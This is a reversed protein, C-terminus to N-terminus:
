CVQKKLISIANYKADLRQKCVELDQKLEEVEQQFSCMMVWNCVWGCVWGGVWVIQRTQIKFCIRLILM